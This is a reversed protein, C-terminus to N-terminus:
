PTVRESHASAGLLRVTVRSGAGQRAPPGIGVRGIEGTSRLHTGGCPCRDVGDIEIVRVPDVKPPLPVAGSRASPAREWEARPVFVIRVDRPRALEDLVNRETSPWDVGAPWPGELDIRATPGALAAATTKLGATAYLLASVFHQVTHLRMHDFRREWDIEGTVREGPAPPPRGDSSRALAHIIAEGSKRVDTVPWRGGGEGAIWGHDSPQGGGTPYFYTRDLVVAGPPRAVVSAPFARVYASPLDALYAAETM